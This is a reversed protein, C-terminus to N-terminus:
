RSCVRCASVEGPRTRPLNPLQAHSLFRGHKNWLFLGHLDNSQCIFIKKWSWNTRFIIIPRKSFLQIVTGQRLPRYSCKSPWQAGSKWVGFFFIRVFAARWGTSHLGRVDRFYFGNGMLVFNNKIINFSSNYASMKRKSFQTFTTPQLKVTIWKKSYDM